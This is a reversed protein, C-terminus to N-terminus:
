PGPPTFAGDADADVRIPNAFGFPKIWKGPLADNMFKDGRALVVIWTDSKLELDVELNWASRSRPLERTREELKAGNGYIEVRAVDIWEPARVSIGLSVRSGQV